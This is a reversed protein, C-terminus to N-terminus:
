RWCRGANLMNVLQHGPRPSSPAAGRFDAALLGTRCSKEANFIGLGHGSFGTGGCRFVAVLDIQALQESGQDVLHHITPM